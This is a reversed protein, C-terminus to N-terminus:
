KEDKILNTYISISMDIVILVIFSIIIWQLLLQVRDNNAMITPQANNMSLVPIVGAHRHLWVLLIIYFADIVNKGWFQIAPHITIVNKILTFTGHLFMVMGLFKLWVLFLPDSQTYIGMFFQGMFHTGLLILFISGIVPLVKNYSIKNGM